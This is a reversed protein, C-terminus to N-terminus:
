GPFRVPKGGLCDRGTASGGGIAAYGKTQGNSTIAWPAGCLIAVAPFVTTQRALVPSDCTNTDDLRVPM